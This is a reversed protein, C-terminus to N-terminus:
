YGVSSAPRWIASRNLQQYYEMREPTMPRSMLGYRLSDYCHDESKTDIDEFDNKDLPLAPLTRILNRCTKFIKLKATQLETLPDEFIRLRRHVEAKGSKRSGATRDSPRWFCGNQRMIEPIPPGIDGRRAWVSSDMVGYQVSEGYEQQRVRQAFIDATLGKGYFERYVWITNEYDVAFWLVCFNTSFGWDCSRFRPWNAPIEFPEVVHIDPDFEEFAAGEVIDWRGELWMKRLKEPLSLLMNMYDDTQNLYPNDELRAPIFRRSEYTVKGTQYNTIPIHFTTNWPAADVFQEKIWHMGAGGPNCTMRMFTPVDPNVSRLSGKLLTFIRDSAYLGIEDVGIWTYAQGQYREADKENEAYGFEIRAGSPFRFEKEQERWKVEPYAAKYLRHAHNIIDRLEPMTKRLLLARHDALGCYRLPDVILSYSKGGGRAGGFLVFKETAALFDTQPGPNPKFIVNVDDQLVDEIVNEPIAEELEKDTFINTKTVGLPSEKAIHTAVRKIANTRIRKKQGVATELLEIDALNNEARARILELRLRDLPQKAIKGPVLTKKFKNVTKRAAM